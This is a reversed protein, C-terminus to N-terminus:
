ATIFSYLVYVVILSAFLLVLTLSVKKALDLPINHKIAPYFEHAAITEIHELKKMPM